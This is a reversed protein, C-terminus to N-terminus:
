YSLATRHVLLTCAGPGVQHDCHYYYSSRSDTLSQLGGRFNIITIRIRIQQVDDGFILPNTKPGLCVEPLIILCVKRDTGHIRTTIQIM